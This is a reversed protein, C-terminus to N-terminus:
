LAPDFEFLESDELAEMQHVLGPLVAMCEGPYLEFERISTAEPCAKARM